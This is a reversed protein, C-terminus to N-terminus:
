YHLFSNDTNFTIEVTYHQFFMSLLLNKNSTITRKICSTSRNANKCSLVFVLSQMLVRLSLNYM